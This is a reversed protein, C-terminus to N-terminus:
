LQSKRFTIQQYLYNTNRYACNTIKVKKKKWCFFAVIPEQSPGLKATQGGQVVSISWGAAPCALCMGPFRADLGGWSIRKSASSFITKNAGWEKESDLGLRWLFSMEAAQRLITIKTMILLDYTLTAGQFGTSSCWLCFFYLGSPIWM